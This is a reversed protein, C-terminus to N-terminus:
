LEVRHQDGKKAHAQMVLVHFSTGVPKKELFIDSADSRVAGSPFTIKKARAARSHLGPRAAAFNRTKARMQASKLSNQSPKRAGISLRSSTELSVCVCASYLCLCVLTGFHALRWKSHGSKCKTCQRRGGFWLRPLRIDARTPLHCCRARAAAVAALNCAPPSSLRDSRMETSVEALVQRPRSEVGHYCARHATGYTGPRRRRANTAVAACVRACHVICM